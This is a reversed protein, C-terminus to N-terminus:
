TSQYKVKSLEVRKLFFTFEIISNKGTPIHIRQWFLYNCPKLIMHLIAEVNDDLELGVCFLM